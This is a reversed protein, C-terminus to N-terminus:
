KYSGGGTPGTYSSFYRGDPYEPLWESEADIWMYTKGTDTEYITDGNSPSSPRTSSTCVTFVDDAEHYRTYTNSLKASTIATYGNSSGRILYDVSLHSLSTDAIGFIVGSLIPPSLYVEYISGGDPSIIEGSNVFVPRSGLDRPARPPTYPVYGYTRTSGAIVGELNHHKNYLDIWDIIGEGDVESDEDVTPKLYGDGHIESSLGVVLNIAGVVTATNVIKPTNLYFQNKETDTIVASGVATSEDYGFFRARSFANGSAVVTAEDITEYEQDYLITARGRVRYADVHDIVLNTNEISTQGNATAIGLHGFYVDLSATGDAEGYLNTLGVNYYSVRGKGIATARDNSWNIDNALIYSMGRVYASSTNIMVLDGVVTASGEVPMAFESLNSYAEATIASVGIAYTQVISPM